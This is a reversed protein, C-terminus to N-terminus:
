RVALVINEFINIGSRSVKINESKLGKLMVQLNRLCIPGSSSEDSQETGRHSEFRIRYDKLHDGITERLNHPIQVGLSDKYLVIVSNYLYTVAFCVWHKVGKSYVAFYSEREINLDKIKGLAQSKAPDNSNILGFQAEFDYEYLDVLYEAVCLIENEDYEENSAIKRLTDTTIKESLHSMKKSYTTSTYFSINRRSNYISNDDYNPM